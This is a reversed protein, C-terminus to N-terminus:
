KKDVARPAPASEFLVERPAPASEVPHDKWWQEEVVAANLIRKAEGIVEAAARAEEAQKLAARATQVREAPKAGPKAATLVPVLEQITEGPIAWSETRGARAIMLGIVHGDLDVIPGGCDGPKVVADTQFFRPIGTRRESLTSGMSNQMDGRNGGKGKPLLDSPRKGLTVSMVMRKGERELTIKVTEGAKYGLLTNILSEQNVIEHADILLITDKPQIGAKEAAGGPSVQLITAGAADPDPTVGLFGSQESPVRPPGYPPPPSRPTTSVVGVAVPEASMCAIAVWNGVPAMKTSSWTIPVLGTGDVKIMALDFGDSTATLQADLDRGDRTKVSLRGSKVESAKTLVYGNESVVTGLTADKGDVLVRVTSKAATEVAPKFLALFEPKSKTPASANGGGSGRDKRQAHAPVAVAIVILAPFLYQKLM